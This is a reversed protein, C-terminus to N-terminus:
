KGRKEAILAAAQLVKECSMLMFSNVEKKNFFHKAEAQWRPLDAGGAIVNGIWHREDDTCSNVVNIADGLVQMIGVIDQPISIKESGKARREYTAFIEAADMFTKYNSM